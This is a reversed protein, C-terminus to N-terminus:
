LVVSVTGGHARGIDYNKTLDITSVNNPSHFYKRLASHILILMKSEKEFQSYYSDEANKTERIIVEYLLGWLYARYRNIISTIM